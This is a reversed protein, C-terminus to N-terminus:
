RCDSFFNLSFKNKEKIARGRVKIASGNYFSKMKQPKGIPARWFIQMRLLLIRYTWLPCKAIKLQWTENWITWSGLFKKKAVVAGGKTSVQM